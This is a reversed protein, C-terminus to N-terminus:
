VCSERSSSLNHQFGEAHVGSASPRRPALSRLGAPIVREGWAQVDGLPVAVGSLRRAELPGSSPPVAPSTAASASTPGPGRPAETLPELGPSLLTGGGGKVGEALAAAAGPSLSGRGGAMSGYSSSSSMSSYSPNISDRGPGGLGGAAAEMYLGTAAAATGKTGGYQGSPLSATTVAPPARPPPPPGEKEASARVLILDPGGAIQDFDGQSAGPTHTAEEAGAKHCVVRPQTRGHAHAHAQRLRPRIVFLVVLSCIVVSGLAGTVAALVVALLARDVGGGPTEAATASTRKEAVDIPTHHLLLTPPAEGQSNVAGVALQYETGPALGTVTFSPESTSTMSTVVGGAEPRGAVRRATHVALTFTQTLGGSWGPSCRVVVEGAASSANQWVSCNHVPEPAAAPVILFVCPQPQNGVENVAWCLLTGFDHHTMPTYSVTSRDRLAHTRNQPINLLEASTNFAWRFAHADPHAHVRCTVNVQEGRGSGYTWQQDEACTPRFKVNLHLPNSTTDGRPNSAKCVYDGTSRRGVGQLVLSRNAVIVGASVNQVLERGQLFWRVNEVPPNAHVECEFYVDDGEKIHSLSLSHGPRLKLRPPYHVNLKVIDEGVSAPLDRNDARCSLVAGHNERTPTLRLSSRSVNGEMLVKNEAPTMLMGDMWWTLNAPPRSGWAECTLTYVGGEALHQPSGSITVELPPFSMDLTVSTNLPRTLNSNAASCTIVRFLHQRSLNPLTLTNRTVQATSNEILDDILSGEHWWTVQPPPRGGSAQCTLKLNEKVPYPGIVGSVELGAESLIAVRQPPVVVQLKMRLNRTPSSGFDVRCRYEGEDEDKVRSVALGQGPPTVKFTARDGMGSWHKSLTLPGNRSDISYVPRGTAGNYVLVLIPSDGPQTLDCPLMASGGVPAVVVAAEGKVKVKLRVQMM